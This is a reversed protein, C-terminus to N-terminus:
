ARSPSRPQGPAAQSTERLAPWDDSRHAHDLMRLAHLRVHTPQAAGAIFAAQEDSPLDLALEILEIATMEKAPKRVVM